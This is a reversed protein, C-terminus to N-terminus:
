QMENVTLSALNLSPALAKRSRSRGDTWETRRAIKRESQSHLSIIGNDCYPLCAPNDIMWTMRRLYYRLEQWVQKGREEKRKGREGELIVLLYRVIYMYDQDDNDDLTTEPRECVPAHWRQM